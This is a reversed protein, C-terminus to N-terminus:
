YGLVIKFDRKNTMISEKKRRSVFTTPLHDFFTVVHKTSLQENGKIQNQALRLRTNWEGHWFYKEPLNFWSKVIAQYGIKSTIDPSHFNLLPPEVTNM